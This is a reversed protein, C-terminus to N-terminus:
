RQYEMARALRNVAAADSPAMSRAVKWPCGQDHGGEQPNLLCVQCVGADDIPEPVGMLTSAILAMRQLTLQLDVLIRESM